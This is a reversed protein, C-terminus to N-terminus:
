LTPGVIRVRRKVGDPGIVERTVDASQTKPLSQPASALPAPAPTLSGDLNVQSRPASKPTSLEVSKEPTVLIDGKREGGLVRDAGALADVWSQGPPKCTCSPDFTKQFKLANPMESYPEGDLSVATDIQNSPARTYVAVTANPCLAQCLNTLQEHDANRASISLPFFGGDCTRVCVAQSGGHAKQEEDSERANDDYPGTGPQPQTEPASPIGFLQEFFGRQRPPPAQNRCYANFKAVLDARAAARDAAGGGAQAVGITAQLQLIQANLGPCRGGGGGSFAIEPRDCGLSRAYTTLRGLEAMQQRSPGSGRSGGGGGRDLEAIKAQLGACDYNQALAGQGLCVLGMIAVAARSFRSSKNLWRAPFGHFGSVDIM